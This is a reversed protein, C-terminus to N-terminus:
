RYDRVKTQSNEEIEIFKELKRKQTGESECTDSEHKRNNRKRTKVTILTTKM